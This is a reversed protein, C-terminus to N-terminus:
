MGRSEMGPQGGAVKFRNKPTKEAKHLEPDSAGIAVVQYRCDRNLAEFWQPLEVQATHDDEPQVIGDYVNMMEDSEV